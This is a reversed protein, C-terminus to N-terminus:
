YNEFQFVKSKPIHTRIDVILPVHDSTRRTLSSLSTNPLAADWSLSIFARDLRELTPTSRKNSWTFQRDLLPLEILCMDNVCDNFSQAEFQHFNPNNKEHPYRIM